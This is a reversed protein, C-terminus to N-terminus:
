SRVGRHLVAHRNDAWPQTWICLGLDHDLPARQPGHADGNINQSGINVVNLAINGVSAPGATTIEFGLEPWAVIVQGDLANDGNGYSLQGAPQYRRDSQLKTYYQSSDVTGAPGGAGRQGQVGPLGQPGRPGQEREHGLRALLADQDLGRRTDLVAGAVQEDGVRGRRRAGALVVDAEVPERQEGIAPGTRSAASFSRLDWPQGVMM